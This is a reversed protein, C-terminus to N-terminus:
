AQGKREMFADVHAGLRDEVDQLETILPLANEVAHHVQEHAQLAAPLTDTHRHLRELTPATSCLVTCWFGKMAGSPYTILETRVIAVRGDNIYIDTQYLIVNDDPNSM